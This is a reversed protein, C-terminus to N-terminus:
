DNTLLREIPSQLNIIPSQHNVISRYKEFVNNEYLIKEKLLCYYISLLFYVISLGAISLEAIM